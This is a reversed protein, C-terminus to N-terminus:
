KSQMEWLKTYVIMTHFSQYISEIWGETGDRFGQKKILRECLTTLGMRLVRWWVVVPHKAEFLKQAEIGSWRISKELAPEIKEPQLHIMSNKLLGLEGDFLPQEHVDGEWKKLSEKLFLRKAYDPYWGGWHLEEGLLYNSRPIAYASYKSEKIAQLIENKLLPTIREDADVWFIWEGKSEKIGQNHWAAYNMEAPKQDIIRVKYDSAIERTKDNSRPNLSVIVEDAWIVSELCDRIFKEENGSNIIVTVSNKNIKNM